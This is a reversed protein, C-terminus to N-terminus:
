RAEPRITRSAGHAFHAIHGKLPCVVQKQGELPVGGEIPVPAHHVMFRLNGAKRYRGLGRPDTEHLAEPIACSFTGNGIAEFDDLRLKRARPRTLTVRSELHFGAAPLGRRVSNSLM